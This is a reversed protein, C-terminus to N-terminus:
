NVVHTGTYRDEAVGTRTLCTSTEDTLFLVLFTVSPEPILYTGLVTFFDLLSGTVMSNHRTHNSYYIRRFSPRSFSRSILLPQSSLRPDPNLTETPSPCHLRPLPTRPPGRSVGEPPPNLLLEPLTQDRSSLLPLPRCLPCFRCWSM